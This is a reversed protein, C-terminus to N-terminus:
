TDVACCLMLKICLLQIYTNLTRKPQRQILLSPLWSCVQHQPSPTTMTYTKSSQSDCVLVSCGKVAVIHRTNWHIRPTTWSTCESTPETICLLAPSTIIILPKCLFVRYKFLFALAPSDTLSIIIGGSIGDKKHAMPAQEQGCLFARAWAEGVERVGLAKWYGWHPDLWQVQSPQPLLM